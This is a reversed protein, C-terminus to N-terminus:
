DVHYMVEIHYEVCTQTRNEIQPNAVGIVRHVYKRWKDKDGTMRVSEEVPLRNVNQHGDRCHTTKREQIWRAGPMTGQMLEKELCSKKERPNVM